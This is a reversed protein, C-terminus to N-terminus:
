QDQRRERPFDDCLPLRKTTRIGTGDEIGYISLCLDGDCRLTTAPEDAPHSHISMLPYESKRAGCAKRCCRPIPVM